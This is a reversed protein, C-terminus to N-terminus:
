NNCYSTGTEGWKRMTKSWVTSNQGLTLLFERWTGNLARLPFSCFFIFSLLSTTCNLPLQYNITLMVNLVTAQTCSNGWELCPQSQEQHGKDEEQFRFSIAFLPFDHDIKSTFTYSNFLKPLLYCRLVNSNTHPLLVVTMTPKFELFHGSLIGQPKTHKHTHPPPDKTVEQLM